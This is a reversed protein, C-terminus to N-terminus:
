IGYKRDIVEPAIYRPTGTLSSLPEHDQLIKAVGFDILKIHLNQPNILINDEKIDRHVINKAKLYTLVQFIQKMINAIDNESIEERREKAFTRLDLM